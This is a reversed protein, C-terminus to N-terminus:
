RYSDALGNLINQLDLTAAIGCLMISDDYTVRSPLSSAIMTDEPNLRTAM